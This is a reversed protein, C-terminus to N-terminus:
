LRCFAQVSRSLVASVRRDLAYNEGCGDFTDKDKGMKNEKKM